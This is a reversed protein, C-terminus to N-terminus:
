LNKGMLNLLYDNKYILNLLVKIYLLSKYIFVKISNIVKICFLRLLTDGFLGVLLVYIYLVWLEQLQKMWHIM